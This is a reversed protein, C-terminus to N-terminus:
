RFMEEAKSWSGSAEEAEAIEVLTAAIIPHRPNPVQSEAFVSRQHFLAEEFLKIKKAPQRPQVRLKAHLLKNHALAM